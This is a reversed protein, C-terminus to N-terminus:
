VKYLLIKKGPEEYVEFTPAVHNTKGKMQAKIKRMSNRYETKLEGHFYPKYSGFPMAYNEHEMVEARVVINWILVLCMFFFNCTIMCWGDKTDVDNEIPTKTTEKTKNENKRKFIQRFVRTISDNVFLLTFYGAFLLLLMLSEVLTVVGDWMVLVLVGVSFAYIVCDRSLIHWKLQIGQTLITRNSDLM